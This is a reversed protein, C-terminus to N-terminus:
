RTECQYSSLVCSRNITSNHWERFILLTSITFVISLQLHDLLYLSPGNCIFTLCYFQLLWINIYSSGDINFQDHRWVNDVAHTVSNYSLVHKLITQWKSHNGSHGLRNSLGPTMHQGDWGQSHVQYIPCSYTHDGMPVPQFLLLHLTHSVVFDLTQQKEQTINYHLIVEDICM